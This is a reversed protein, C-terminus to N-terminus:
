PRYYNTSKSHGMYSINCAWSFRKDSIVAMYPEIGDKEGVNIVITSSYNSFDKNIVYAPKTKYESYQETLDLTKIMAKYDAQIIDFERLQQELESVEKKLKENEEKLNSIDSFFTNNKAIKNKLYVMGNQIPMVLTSLGNGIYSFRSVNVNSMGVLLILIIITIIVGITGGRSKKYM